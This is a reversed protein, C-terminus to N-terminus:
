QVKVNDVAIELTLICVLSLNKKRDLTRRFIRRSSKLISSLYLSNITEDENNAISKGACQYRFKGYMKLTLFDNNDLYITNIVCQCIMISTLFVTSSNSYGVTCVRITDRQRHPIPATL